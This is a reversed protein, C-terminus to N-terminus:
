PGVTDPDWVGHLLDLSLPAYKYEWSKPSLSLLIGPVCQGALRVSVTVELGVSLVERLFHLLFYNFPVYLTSRKCGWLVCVSLCMYTYMYLVHVCVPNPLCASTLCIHSLLRKDLEFLIKDTEKTLRVNELTVNSLSFNNSACVLNLFVQTFSRPGFFM